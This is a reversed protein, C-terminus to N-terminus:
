INNWREPRWPKVMQPDIVELELHQEVWDKILQETKDYNLSFMDSINEWILYSVWLYGSNRLELIVNDDKKWFRSDPYEESDIEYVGDFLYDLYKFQVKRMQNDTIIDKM